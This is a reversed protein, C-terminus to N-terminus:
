IRFWGRKIIQLRMKRGCIDKILEKLHCNTVKFM